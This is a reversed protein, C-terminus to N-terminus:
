LKQIIDFRLIVYAEFFLLQTDGLKFSPGTKHCKLYLCETNKYLETLFCLSCLLTSNHVEHTVSTCEEKSVNVNSYSNRVQKINTKIIIISM